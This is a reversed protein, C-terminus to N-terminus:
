APTPMLRAAVLRSPWAEPDAVLGIWRADPPCLDGDALREPLRLYLAGVAAEGLAAVTRELLMASQAGEWPVDVIVTRGALEDLVAEPGDVAVADEPAEATIRVARREDAWALVRAVRPDPQAPVLVAEGAAVAGTEGDLSVVEGEAIERDGFRAIRADLDVSLGDVGCVAPRGIGRAVVAAHSTRGGLATVIGACAIMGDIDEPSTEPRVLIVSHGEGALADARDADLAVIGVAAGPSAPTGRGVVDLQQDRALVPAQLREMASAPIRALATEEDILAEDVLDVAIRVAAPGSRQGPRAQLIWLKGREVTFEVDCMDRYEAEILPLARELEAYPRPMTARMEELPRTNHGGAVIDEGQARPLYDGYLDPAGTAPDRTFVVGTGSDEDQNGFVMAQVTVATGLDDPISAFRRYRRARRSDWSEWVAVVAERLQDPAHDPIPRGTREETLAQIAAAEAPPDAADATAADLDAAPVRRVVTAFMRLFRVYVQWAFAEDTARALGEVARPDLGLNLITDMMGPMSIPAGSRVSVLLPRDPDGFRRDLQAELDSIREVLEGRLLQPMRGEAHYARWGDTTITFGPPTPLGLAAMRALSAGKGGLLEASEVGSAFPIAFATSGDNRRTGPM